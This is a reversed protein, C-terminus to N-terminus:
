IHTASSTPRRDLLDEIRDSRASCVLAVLLWTAPLVWVKGETKYPVVALVLLACLLDSVVVLRRVKRFAAHDRHGPQLKEKTPTDDAEAALDDVPATVPETLPPHEDLDLPARLQVPVDLVADPCDLTVTARGDESGHVRVRTQTGGAGNNSGRRPHREGVYLRDKGDSDPRRM